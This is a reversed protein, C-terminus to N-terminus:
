VAGNRWRSLQHSSACPSRWTCPPATPVSSPPTSTTPGPPEPLDVVASGLRGDVAEVARPLHMGLVQVPEGVELRGDGVAGPRVLLGDEVDLLRERAPRDGAKRQARDDNWAHGVPAGRAGEGARPRLREGGERRARDELEM